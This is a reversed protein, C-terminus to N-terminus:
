AAGFGAEEGHEAAEAVVVGALGVPGFGVQAVKTIKPKGIGGVIADELVVEGGNVEMVLADGSEFFCHELKQAVPLAFGEDIGEHGEFAELEDCGHDGDTFDAGEAAEFVGFLEHGEEAEDRGFAGATFFLASTSNTFTTIRMGAPDEDFLGGVVTNGWLDAGLKGFSLFAGLAPDLFQGPFGLCSEAVAEAGKPFALDM